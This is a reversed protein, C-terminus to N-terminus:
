FTEHLKNRNMEDIIPNDVDGLKQPIPRNTSVFVNFHSGDVVKGGRMKVAAIQIIDDNLVDLGTTETDFIVMEHEEYEHAFDQVYTSGDYLLFDSPLMARDFLSRVFVRAIDNSNFV